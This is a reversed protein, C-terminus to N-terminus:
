TSKVLLIVLSLVPIMSCVAQWLYPYLQNILHIKYPEFDARCWVFADHFVSQHKQLLDKRKQEDQLQLNTHEFFGHLAMEHKAKQFERLIELNHVITNGTCFLTSSVQFQTFLPLLARMQHVGFFRDISVDNQLDEEVDISVFCIKSKM